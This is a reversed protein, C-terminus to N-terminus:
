RCLWVFFRSSSSFLKFMAIEGIRFGLDFCSPPRKMVESKGRIQLILLPETMLLLIIIIKYRVGRRVGGVQM